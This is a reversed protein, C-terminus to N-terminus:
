LVLCGQSRGGCERFTVHAADGDGLGVSRTGHETDGAASLEGLNFMLKGPGPRCSEQLLFSQPKLVPDCPSWSMWSM